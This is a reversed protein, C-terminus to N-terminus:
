GLKVPGLVASVTSEGLCQVCALGTGLPLPDDVIVLANQKVTLRMPENDYRKFQGTADASARSFCPNRLQASAHPQHSWITM